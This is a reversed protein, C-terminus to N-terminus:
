CEPRATIQRLTAPGCARGVCSSSPPLRGGDDDQTGQPKLRHLGGGAKPATTQGREPEGTSGRPAANGYSTGASIWTRSLASWGQATLAHGPGPPAAEAKERLEREEEVLTQIRHLIGQEDM